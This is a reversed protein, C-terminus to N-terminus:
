STKRKKLLNKYVKIIEQYHKEQNLKKATARAEQGIKVLDKRDLNLIKEKLEQSNGPSYLFGNRGDEIIEPLGGIKAAIVVKGLAMAELLSYPMNEPWVSPIIIAKARIILNKLDDNYKPGLLEVQKDLRKKTILGKINKYDPGAGAIKLKLRNPGIKLATLITKIGKEISLRGFYLLYDDSKLTNVSSPLDRFFSDPVFNYIVKIKNEPLGFSVMTAKMFLSPAIFLDIKEYTGLLYKTFYGELMGLWSIGYSDQICKRFFCHYYRGGRCRYCIAKKSFLQRNPCIMKYDHLTQIVKVNNDKLVGIIAPSLHNAWNHLHALQPKYFKILSQLKKAAERNYFSKLIDRVGFKNVNVNVAFYKEYASRQNRDDVMSFPIVTQKKSALLKSLEFMYKESGGRLYFFKNIQLIKAM